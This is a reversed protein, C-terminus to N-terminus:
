FKSKQLLDAHFSYKPESISFAFVVMSNQMNSITLRAFKLKFLFNENEQALKAM